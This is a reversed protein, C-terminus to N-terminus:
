NGRQSKTARPELRRPMAQELPSGETSRIVHLRQGSGHDLTMAEIRLSGQPGLEILGFPATPELPDGFLAFGERLTTGAMVRVRITRRIDPDRVFENKLRELFEGTDSCCVVDFNRHLPEVDLQRIDDVAVRFQVSDNEAHARAIRGIIRETLTLAVEFDSPLQIMREDQLWRIVRTSGRAREVVPEIDVVVDRLEDRDLREAVGPARHKLDRVAQLCADQGAQAVSFASIPYLGPPSATDNENAVAVADSRGVAETGAQDSVPAEVRAVQANQPAPDIDTPGRFADAALSAAILVIAAAAAGTLVYRAKVIWPLPERFVADPTGEGSRIRQWLDETFGAGVTSSPLSRALAQAHEMEALLRGADDDDDLQDLLRERRGSPLRGDLHLSLEQELRKRDM